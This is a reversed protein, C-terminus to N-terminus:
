VSSTIRKDSAFNRKFRSTNNRYKATFAGSSTFFCITVYTRCYTSVASSLAFFSYLFKSSDIYHMSFTTERFILNSLEFCPFDELCLCQGDNCVDWRLPCASKFAIQYVSVTNDTKLAQFLFIFIRCIKKPMLVAFATNIVSLIM